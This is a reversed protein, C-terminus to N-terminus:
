LTKVKPIIDLSVEQANQTANKKIKLLITISQKAAKWVWYDM